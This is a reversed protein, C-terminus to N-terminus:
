QFALIMRLKQTAAEIDSLDFIKAELYLVPEYMIISFKHDWVYRGIETHPFSHPRYDIVYDDLVISEKILEENKFQIAYKTAQITANPVSTRCELCRFYEM